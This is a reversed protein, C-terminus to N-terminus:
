AATHSRTPTHAHMATQFPNIEDGDNLECNNWMDRHLNGVRGAAASSTHTIYAVNWSVSMRTISSGQSSTLYPLTATQAVLVAGSRSSVHWIPDCLTVQWGASSVDGGKGWGILAPVRHRTPITSHPRILQYLSTQSYTHTDTLGRQLLFVVQAILLLSSSMYHM